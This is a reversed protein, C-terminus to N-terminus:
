PMVLVSRGMASGSAVRQLAAPVEVLTVEETVLPTIRGQRLLACLEAHGDAIVTPREAIYRGLHVGRISYNKVLAHNLRAAQIEGGAFGIVLISGEFAVCRTSRHFVDGGVPDLILDAGRGATHRNVVDVFNELVRDVVLDAGADRAVACKAPGGAVAIVHAEAAKALQVAATGVGGAAAHILVTDGAKVQGVRHLALWATQYAVHLSAAAADSLEAPAPFASGAEMLAFEAFAGAPMASPGLVRQGIPGHADGAAVVVGSLELGPTFPLPPRTQYEGRCMLADPITLTAACVRVLLQGAGPHPVDTETLRMAEAPEGTTRVQWAKM